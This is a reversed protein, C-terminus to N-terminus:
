AKTQREISDKLLFLADLARAIDSNLTDVAKKPLPKGKSLATEVAVDAALLGTLGAVALTQQELSSHDSDIGSHRVVVRGLRYAIAKIALDAAAPVTVDLLEIIQMTEELTLHHTDVDPKLKSRLVNPSKGMRAALAEIGGPYRRAATYLADAVSMQQYAKTM